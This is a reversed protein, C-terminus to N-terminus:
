ASPQSQTTPQPLLIQFLTGRAATSHCQVIGGMQMVLNRVIHLGLGAHAKGKASRVPQFLRELVRQPIGPGNDKVIIEVCLKGDESVYDRRTAVVVEGGNVMAEAANRLLNLLVQRLAAPDFYLTPVAHHLDTRVNVGLKAWFPGENRVIDFITANLDSSSQEAAADSGPKDASRIIDTIRDIEEDIVTLSPRAADEQALKMRLIKVYNKIIALPNSVDHAIRHLTESVDVSVGVPAETKPQTQRAVAFGAQQAFTQLLQTQAEIQGANLQPVGIVMVGLKREHAALPICLLTDAGMLRLLLQDVVFPLEHPAASSVLQGRLFADCVVSVGPSCPLVFEGLTVLDAGLPMGQLSNRGSDHTFFACRRHGFLIHLSKRVALLVGHLGGGNSFKPRTNSLLGQRRVQEVLLKHREWYRQPESAKETDSLESPKSDAGASRLFPVIRRQEARATDAASASTSEDRAPAGGRATELTAGGIHRLLDTRAAIRVEDLEQSRLVMLDAAALRDTNPLDDQALANAVRAIKILPHVARLRAFPECCYLLADALLSDLQMNRVIWHGLAAGTASFEDGAAAEATEPRETSARATDQDPGGALSRYEPLQTALALEGLGQLLGCLYAEDGAPYGIRAALHRAIFAREMSKRRLALQESVPMAGSQAFVLNVAASMALTRLADVGVEDILDAIRTVRRAAPMHAAAVDLLRTCLAIDKSVIAELAESDPFTQRCAEILDLLTDPFSPLNLLSISALKKNNIEGM